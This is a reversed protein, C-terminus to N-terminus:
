TKQNLSDVPFCSRSEGCFIKEYNQISFQMCIIGKLLLLLIVQRRLCYAKYKCRVRPNGNGVNIGLWLALAVRHSVQEYLRRLRLFHSIGPQTATYPTLSTAVRLNAKSEKSRCYLFFFMQKWMESNFDRLLANSIMILIM